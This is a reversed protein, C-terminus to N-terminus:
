SASGAAAASTSTRQLITGPDILRYALKRGPAPTFSEVLLVADKLDRYELRLEPGDISAVVYGNEGVPTGDALTHQRTDYFLLPAKTPDPQKMEVPMGGHGACRGFVTLGGDKSFRDYIALRHEHGWLWVVEQDGFIEKLQKAPKTYNQEFASFYQHHSLLLTAKENRAPDVVSKLWEILAKELHSDGGVASISNIGPVMSLLPWGVSNYGTDLGVIRWENTELCFFSALQGESDGKLGLKRLFLEFYPGGNAYM